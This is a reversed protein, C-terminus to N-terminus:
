SLKADPKEGVFASSGIVRAVRKNKNRRSRKQRAEEAKRSAEKEREVHLPYLDHKYVHTEILTSFTHVSPSSRKKTPTCMGDSACINYNSACKNNDKM